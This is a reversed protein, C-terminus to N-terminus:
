KAGGYTRTIDHVSEDILEFRARGTQKEITVQLMCYAPLSFPEDGCSCGGVIETFFVGVRAQVADDMERTDIVTVALDSDDVLGGQELGKHLPLEGAALAEISRKLAPVFERTGWSELLGRLCAM